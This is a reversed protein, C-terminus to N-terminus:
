LHTHIYKILKPSKLRGEDPHHIITFVRHCGVSSKSALLSVHDETFNQHTVAMEEDNCIEL